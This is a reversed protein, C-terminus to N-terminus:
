PELSARAAPRDILPRWVSAPEKEFFERPEHLQVFSERFLVGNGRTARDGNESRRSSSGNNALKDGARVPAGNM